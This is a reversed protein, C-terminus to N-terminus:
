ETKNEIYERALTTWELQTNSSPSKGTVKKPSGKLERYELIADRFESCSEDLDFSM